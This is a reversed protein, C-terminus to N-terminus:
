KKPVKEWDKLFLELGHETLPHQVLQMLVKFPITSIDAGMMAADLVHLPNRISAVLIESDFDYNDLISRLQSVVEMGSSGIDDWRGVFVSLFTGGAKAALLGQLATFILTVNTKIGEASLAKIAKLGEGTLPIKVVVNDSIRALRRAEEVMGAADTSVVELSVPGDVTECIEKVIDMFPRGERAILSPNTTVGDILGMENAIRIEDTNATDIFIKM